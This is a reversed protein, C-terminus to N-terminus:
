WAASAYAASVVVGSLSIQRRKVQSRRGVFGVIGFGLHPPGQPDPCGLSHALSIACGIDAAPTVTRSRIDGDSPECGPAVMRRGCCECGRVLCQPVLAGSAFGGLGCQSNRLRCDQRQLGLEGMLLHGVALGDGHLALESLRCLILLACVIGTLQPGFGTSRTTGCRRIPCIFWCVRWGAVM